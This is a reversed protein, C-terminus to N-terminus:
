YDGFLGPIIQNFNGRQSNWWHRFDGVKALKLIGLVFFLLASFGLAAFHFDLGNLNGDAGALVVQREFGFASGFPQDFAM